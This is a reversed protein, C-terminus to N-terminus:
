RDYLCLLPHCVFPTAGFTYFDIKSDVCSVVSKFTGLKVIKGRDAQWYVLFIAKERFCCRKGGVEREECV